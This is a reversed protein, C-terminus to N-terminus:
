TNIYYRFTHVGIQSSSGAGFGNFLILKSGPSSNGYGPRVITTSMIGLAQTTDSFNNTPAIPLSITYTCGATTTPQVSLQVWCTVINGVRQYRATGSLAIATVNSVGAVTPTWTDEIYDVMNGSAFTIGGTGVTTTGSLTPSAALVVAGSGTVGNTNFAVNGSSDLTMYNLAAPLTAPLTLNYNAAISANPSVTVTKSNAVANGIILPGVAMTAPTSTSGQFTFTGASYSASATGSPLGTITGTSGSVSGSQTIRIQNGNADNYYLDVGAEYLCGIDTSLALAASQPSFRVSRLNTANNNQFTLDNIISLGDPTVPAGSGSSHNHGDITSMCANYNNAWDPGPDEGVTPVPLGMNPSITTFAM